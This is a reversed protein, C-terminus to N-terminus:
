QRSGHGFADSSLRGPVSTGRSSEGLAAECARLSEAPKVRELWAERFLHYCRRGCCGLVTGSCTVGELAVTNGFRHMQGTWEVVGKEVRRAVRYTGGCFRVMDPLFVLGRNRGIRDLTKQIEERSKVRVLEGPQLNLCVDPTKTGQGCIKGVLHMGLRRRVKNMATLSVMQLIQWVTREGYRCERWYRWLDWWGLRITAGPLETVQCAFPGEGPAATHLLPLEGPRDPEDPPGEAAKLWAEKWLILCGLQCGGHAAGDCRVEELLVTRALRAKYRRGDHYVKEVRGGVRFRRGCYKAMEPMFLLGELTGRADLMADIESRSRVEM